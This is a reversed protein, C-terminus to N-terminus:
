EAPASKVEDLEDRYIPIRNYDTCILPAEGWVGNQEKKTRGFVNRENRKSAWFFHVLSFPLRLDKKPNGNQQSGV